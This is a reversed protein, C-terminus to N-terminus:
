KSGILFGMKLSRFIYGILLGGSIVLIAVIFNWLLVQISGEIHISLRNQIFQVVQLLLANSVFISFTDKGICDSVENLVRLILSYKGSSSINKTPALALLLTLSLFTVSVGLYSCWGNLYINEIVVMPLLLLAIILYKIKAELYNRSLAIGLVVYPIWYIFVRANLGTILKNNPLAYESFINLVIGIAIAIGFNKYQIWKRLTPFLITLQMLIIFYYQGSWGYGGIWGGIITHIPTTLWSNSPYLGIYLLTWFTYPIVLLKLRDLIYTKYEEKPRRTLGRELYFAWMGIFCPVCFRFLDAFPIGIHICVVGIISFTKLYDFNRDRGNPHSNEQLPQLNSM